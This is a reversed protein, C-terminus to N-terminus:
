VGAAGSVATSNNVRVVCRSGLVGDSGTVLKLVRFPLTATVARGTFNVTMNSITLGGTTTAATAVLDVNLGVDAITLPGNSVDVEYEAHPDVVVRVTGATSAPLKIDSLAETTFDPVISSVVGTVSQAATAVDIEQDGAANATSTIRVVDGVSILSAHAAAVGFTRLKGCTNDSLSGTYKFGGPM